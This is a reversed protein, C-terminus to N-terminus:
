LVADFFALTFAGGTGSYTRTSSGVVAVAGRQILPMAEPENLALCSQLVVLSPRLPETWTPLQYNEVMTKYHGEWLFLDQEPLLRRVDDKNVDEEFLPTTQYGCNQLERATHRSFMEM